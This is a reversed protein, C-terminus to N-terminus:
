SPETPAPRRAVREAFAAVADEPGAVRARVEDATHRLTLIDTAVEREGLVLEGLGWVGDDDLPIIPAM